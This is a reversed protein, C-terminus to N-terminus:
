DEDESSDDAAKADEEKTHSKNVEPDSPVDDDLPKIFQPGIGLM